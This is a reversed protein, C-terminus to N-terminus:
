VSVGSDSARPTMTRKDFKKLSRGEAVTPYKSRDIEAEFTGLPMAGPHGVFAKGSCVGLSRKFQLQGCAPLGILERQSQIHM